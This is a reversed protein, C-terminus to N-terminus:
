ECNGAFYFKAYTSINSNVGLTPSFSSAPSDTRNSVFNGLWADGPVPAEGNELSTFPIFLEACWEKETSVVAKRIGKCQWLVDSPRPPDFTTLYDEYQGTSSLVFQFLKDKTQGPSLFFEFNDEGWLKGKKQYPAPSRMGLYIGSKDWLLRVEPDRREKHIEGYFADRLPLIRAKKWAPDDLRGNVEVAGYKVSYAPIKLNQYAYIDGLIKKWPMAFFAFRREAGPKLERRALELHKELEQGIKRPFGKQYLCNYDIPPICRRIVELNALYHNVWREVLLSYFNKLHQASKEGFFLSWHEELAADVDFDPNWYARAILYSSYYYDWHFASCNFLDEDSIGSAMKRLFEGEFYGRLAHSIAGQPAYSPDYLYPIAKGETKRNWGDYMERFFAAYGPHRIYSPTGVCVMVRINDPFKEVTEPPYLYNAYAMVALKRGPLVRAVANGLAVYFNGNIESMFSNRDPNRRAFKRTYDNDIIKHTDVPGFCMYEPTPHYWGWIPNWKGNSDYFKRYCDAMLSIFEPNSIDFYNDTYVSPSYYLKGKRDRAFMTEIKDPFAKAMRFPHPSESCVFRSNRTARWAHKFDGDDREIDDWPWVSPSYGATVKKKQGKKLFGNALNGFNRTYFKPYDSYAVPTVELNRIEPIYVGLGPYYYRIGLFRELFDYVGNVTGNDVCIDLDIDQYFGHIRNGDHGAIAVGGSYTRVVFGEKPLKEIDIHLQDTLSSKGVLIRYRYRSLEPSDPALVVPRQGTTRFFGKQLAKVAIHASHRNPKLPAGSPVSTGSQDAKLDAVIAFNLKGEQVLALPPHKAPSNFKVKNLSPVAYKEVGSLLVCSFLPLLLIASLKM